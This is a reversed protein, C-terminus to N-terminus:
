EFSVNVCALRNGATGAAGQGTETAHDHIVVSRAQGPRFRWDVTAASSGDGEANTRFDLWM